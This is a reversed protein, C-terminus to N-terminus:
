QFSSELSRREVLYVFQSFYHIEMGKGQQGERVKHVALGAIGIRKEAFYGIFDLFNVLIVHLKAARMQFQGPACKRQV